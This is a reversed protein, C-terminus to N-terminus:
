CRPLPSSYTTKSPTTVFYDSVYRNTDIRDWVKTTAVTSGAKQCYTWALSGSPLTGQKPYSAGPGSRQSLGDKATVQFPYFCRPISATYGTESPTNVYHDNVYTGNSLKNWVKTGYVETGPTQCIVSLATGNTLVGAATSSRTPATRANTQGVLLYPRVVTAVPADLWNSDINLTFIM